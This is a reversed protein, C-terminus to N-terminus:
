VVKITLREKTKAVLDSGSYVVKLKLKGTEKAKPLKFVVKGDEVTGKLTKGGKITLEVKGTIEVDTTSSLLVKVKARDGKDIKKPAKVKMEPIVKAVTHAVTTSSATYAASGTYRLTLAYTGPPLLKAPIAVTAKGGSLTAQGIVTTGNLLVVTGTAAAPAVTATVSAATGYTVTPASGTITTATPGGPGPPTTGGSVTIPM